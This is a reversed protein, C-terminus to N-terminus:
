LKGGRYRVSITYSTNTNCIVLLTANENQFRLDYFTYDHTETDPPTIYHESIKTTGRYKALQLFNGAGAATNSKATIVPSIPMAQAYIPIDIRRMDGALTIDRLPGLIENGTAHEVYKTRIVGDVFSFPDWLWQDFTDFLEYKFPEMTYDFTIKSHGKESKWSNVTMRGEYYYSPEDELIAKVRQGHLYNMADSYRNYWEGYDNMVYFEISGTRDNFTPYGGLITSADISGNAGPIDIFNSKFSPVNFLPRSSPILHWDDWTNIGNMSKNNVKFIDQDSPIIQISHYM